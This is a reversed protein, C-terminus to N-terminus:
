RKLYKRQPNSDDRGAGEKKERNAMKGRQRLETKYIKRNKQDKFFIKFISM